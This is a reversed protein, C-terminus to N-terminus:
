VLYSRRRLLWESGAFIVFLVYLASHDWLDIERPEVITRPHDDLFGSLAPWDAISFYQGGSREAMQRLHAHQAGPEM